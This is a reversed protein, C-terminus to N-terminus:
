DVCIGRAKVGRELLFVSSKGQVEWFSSPTEASHRAAPSTNSDCRSLKILFSGQIFAWRRRQQSVKRYRLTILMSPNSRDRKVFGALDSLTWAPFVLCRGSRGVQELRVHWRQSPKGFLHSGLAAKELLAGNVASSTAVLSTRESGVESNYLQTFLWSPRAPGACTVWLSSSAAHM